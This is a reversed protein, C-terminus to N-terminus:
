VRQAAPLPAPVSLNGGGVGLHHHSDGVGINARSMGPSQGESASSAPTSMWNPANTADVKRVSSAPNESGSTTGLATSLSQNMQILQELSNVQVLQNIYENPDTQATPDQNK